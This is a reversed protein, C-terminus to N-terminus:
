SLAGPEGELPADTRRLLTERARTIDVGLVTNPASALYFRFEGIDKSIGNSAITRKKGPM